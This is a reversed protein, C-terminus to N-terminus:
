RRQFEPSSLLLTLGDRPSGAGRVARVTEPRALFGLAAELVDNPNLRSFRGALNYAWEMRQIMGEPNLWDAATDPWGIPAPACWMQQNLGRMGQVAAKAMEAQANLLRFSAFVFDQPSRIKSLPSSWAEPLDVLALAVEALDGRTDRLVGYLRDVVEPGPTDSIFHRALKAALHRHTSEHEALWLLAHEVEQPGDNFRRGLITKLGPEHADAVFRTGIPENRREVTLGTLLEAFAVVDAQTYGAAPSLTHLELIERALNENLGRKQRLGVPSSPGVSSNQNLYFLMAPHHIAARFMEGFRGTVHPRIATRVFDGIISRGLGDRVSVTLHNAWFSVLRERFPTPTTLAHSAAACTELDYFVSVAPQQPPVPRSLEDQRWITLGDTVTPM